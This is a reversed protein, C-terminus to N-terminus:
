EYLTPIGSENYYWAGDLPTESYFYVTAYNLASNYTTSFSISAWQESTGEFFLNNITDEVLYFAYAGVSTVSSPIIISELAYCKQLLRENISTLGKPLRISILAEDDSFACIDLDVNDPLDVYELSTCSSLAAYGISELGEYITVEKLDYCEMFTRTPIEKLARPIVVSTLGTDMFVQEGMSTLTYPLSVSELGRCFHFADDGIKTVTSPIVVEKISSCSTYTHEKIETLGYPINVEELFACAQFAYAGISTVSDPIDCRTLYRMNYFAYPCLYTLTNPLGIFSLAYCSDFPDTDRTAVTNGIGTVPEGEYEMPVYLDITKEMREDDEEDPDYDYWSDDYYSVYYENEGSRKAYTLGEINLNTAECVSCHGTKYSEDDAIVQHPEIKTAECGNDTCTLVHYREDDISVTGTESWNHTEPTDDVVLTDYYEDDKYSLGVGTNYIGNGNTGQGANIPTNSSGGTDGGTSPISTSPTNEESEDEEKQCAGLGVVLTLALLSTLIKRKKM